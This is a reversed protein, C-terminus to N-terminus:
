CFVKTPSPTFSSQEPPKPETVMTVAVKPMTAAEFATSRNSRYDPSRWHERAPTLCNRWAWPSMAAQFLLIAALTQRQRVAISQPFLESRRSDQGACDALKRPLTPSQTIRKRERQAPYGRTHRRHHGDFFPASGDHTKGVSECGQGRMAAKM